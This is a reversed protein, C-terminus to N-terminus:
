ETREFLHGIFDGDGTQFTGIFVLGPETIQHGTGVLRFDRIIMPKNSDVLAWIYPQQHQTQVSLVTAGQPMFLPFIDLPPVHFKWITKAM